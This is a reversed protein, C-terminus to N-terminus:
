MATARATKTMIGRVNTINASTVPTILKLSIKPGKTKQFSSDPGENTRPKKVVMMRTAIITKKMRFANSVVSPAHYGVRISHHDPRGTM